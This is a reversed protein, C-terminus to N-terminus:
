SNRALTTANEEWEVRNARRTDREDERRAARRVDQMLCDLCNLGTISPSLARVSPRASTAPRRSPAAPWSKNKQRSQEAGARMAYHPCLM